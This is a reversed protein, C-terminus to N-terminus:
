EGKQKNVTKKVYTKLRLLEGQVKPEPRVSEEIIRDATGGSKSDLLGEHNRFCPVCAAEEGATQRM